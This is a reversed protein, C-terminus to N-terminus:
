DSLADILVQTLTMRDMETDMLKTDVIDVNAEKLDDDLEKLYARAEQDQGVQIFSIGIEEKNNVLKSADVIAKRVAEKDDPVGDTVVFFTEGYRKTSNRERREFYNNLADQLVDGLETRGNPEHSEFIHQLTAANVNDYRQFTTSFVYLTIGDKDEQDLRRALALTAEQMVTWRSRGKVDPISMSGSKDIILTYDRDALIAKYTVGPESLVSRVPASRPSSVSTYAAQPTLRQPSPPPIPSNIGRDEDSRKETPKGGFFYNLGSDIMRAPFDLWNRLDVSPSSKCAPANGTRGTEETPLFDSTEEVMRYM